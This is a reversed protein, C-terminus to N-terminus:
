TTIIAAVREVKGTDSMPLCDPTWIGFAKALGHRANAERLFLFVGFSDVTIVRLGKRLRWFCMEETGASLEKPANAFVSSGPGARNRGANSMGPM